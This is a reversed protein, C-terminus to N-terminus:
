PLEVYPGLKRRLEEILERQMRIYIDEIFLVVIRKDRATQGFKRMIRGKHEKEMVFVIDAWALDRETLRIRAVPAVGRSRVQYTQSKAFLREATLSRIKNQACVFLLKQPHPATPVPFRTLKLLVFTNRKTILMFTIHEGKTSM